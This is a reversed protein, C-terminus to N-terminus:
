KIQLTIKLRKDSNLQIYEEPLTDVVAGSSVDIIVKRRLYEKKSSDWLRQCWEVTERVAKFDVADQDMLIKYIEYHHSKISLMEGFGAIGTSIIILKDDKTYTTLKSQDYPFVNYQGISRSVERREFARGFSYKVYINDILKYVQERTATAKPAFNNNGVGQLLGAKKTFNVAAKAWSAIKESDNFEYTEAKEYHGIVELYKAIIKAMQERTIKNEPAFENAGVGNVFGLVYGLEVYLNDTDEFYDPLDYSSINKNNVSLYSAVIIEIFEERTIAQDFSKKLEDELLREYSLNFYSDEAWKAPPAEAFSASTLGILLGVIVLCEICRNM